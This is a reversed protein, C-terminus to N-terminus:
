RKFWKHLKEPLMRVLIVNRLIYHHYLAALVHSVILGSLIFAAYYHVLQAAKSLDANKEILDPLTFLGFMSIPHGGADSMIFGSIPMIIILAYLAIPSLKAVRKHWPTLTKPLAPNTNILRWLLRLLVLFFVIVGTAKHYGYLQFKEPSPLMETMIVGVSIMGIIMFAILWHFAKAISGYSNRTNRFSM